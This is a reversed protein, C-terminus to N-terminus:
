FLQPFCPLLLCLLMQQLAANDHIGAMSQHIKTSQHAATVEPLRHPLESPRIATSKVAAALIEGLGRSPTMQIMSTTRTADTNSMGGTHPAQGSTVGMCTVSTVAPQERRSLMVP